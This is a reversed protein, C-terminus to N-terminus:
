TYAGILQAEDIIHGYIANLVDAGTFQPPLELRQVDLAYIRFIYHHPESRGPLPAHYGYSGLDNRAQRLPLGRLVALAEPLLAGAALSMLPPPLDVVGWHFCDGDAVDGQM